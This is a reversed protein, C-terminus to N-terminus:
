RAKLAAMLEGQDFGVMVRNGVVIVPVGSMGLVDQQFAAASEDAEINLEGFRVGQEGFLKRAKACYPCWSTAFMVVDSSSFRTLQARTEPKMRLATKGKEVTGYFAPNSAQVVPGEGGAAAEQEQAKPARMLEGYAFYAGCALGVLILLAKM